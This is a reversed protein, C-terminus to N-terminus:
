SHFTLSDRLVVARKPFLRCYKRASFATCAVVPAALPLSTCKLWLLLQGAAVAVLFPHFKLLRDNIPVLPKFAIVKHYYIFTCVKYAKIVFVKSSSKHSSLKNFSCSGQTSWSYCVSAKRLFRLQHWFCITILLSSCKLVLCVILGHIWVIQNLIIKVRIM